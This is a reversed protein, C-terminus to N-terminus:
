RMNRMWVPRGSDDRLKITKGGTVIQAALIVDNGRFNMKSGTVQIADGKNFSINQSNIYFSPGVMVPITGSTDKVTLRIMYSDGRPAAQSDVTAITGTVTTVTSTDYFQRRQGMGQAFLTSSAAIMSLFVIAIKM